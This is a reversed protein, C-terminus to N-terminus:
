CQRLVLGVTCTFVKVLFQSARYACATEVNALEPRSWALPLQKPESHSKHLPVASQQAQLNGGSYGNRGGLMKMSVGLARKSVPVRSQRLM